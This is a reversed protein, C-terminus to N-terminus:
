FWRVLISELSSLERSIDNVNQVFFINCENEVDAIFSMYSEFSFTESTHLPAM